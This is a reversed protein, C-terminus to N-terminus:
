TSQKVNKKIQGHHQEQHGHHKHHAEDEEHTTAVHEKEGFEFAGIEQDDKVFFLAHSPSLQQIAFHTCSM